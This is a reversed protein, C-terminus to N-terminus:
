DTLHIIKSSYGAMEGLNATVLKGDASVTITGLSAGTLLDTAKYTGALMRTTGSLTAQASSGSVNHVAIIADNGNLIMFSFFQAATADLPYYGGQRLALKNNRIQILRRYYNWISNPDQQLAAVNSIPYDGNPQRWPLGSTFGANAEDSWQMPLRIDEDPKVGRMGIEEGYYLYPVGPLTLMIAAALKAKEVDLSLSEIARNQDHNSLFVGYQREPYVNLLQNMKAKLAFPDGSAVAGVIAGALDFEFCYDMRKDTYEVVDTTPLWAEGVLMLSPNRKKQNLWFNRLWMMTAPTNMLNTNEEILYPIADVRFGDVGVQEDWYKVIASMEATVKESLYNLDPMSGGFYGYYYQGNRPTWNTNNRPSPAWIYYSRKDSRVSSASGTFWPHRDSTHNAVFDIIVKMGRAHAQRILEVFDATTGYDPNVSMYDTVDYGHYSPSPHIPMLWIGTVGLDTTTEPKGDNLYDLKQIVGRLDGIGDGNSDYFSRVFIEYFVNYDWWIESTPEATEEVPEPDCSFAAAAFLLLILRRM